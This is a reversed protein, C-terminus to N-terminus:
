LVSQLCSAVCGLLITMTLTMLLFRDLWSRCLDSFTLNKFIREMENLLAQVIRVREDRQACSFCHQSEKVEFYDNNNLRSQERSKDECIIQQRESMLSEIQEQLDKIKDRGMVAEERLRNIEASLNTVSSEETVQKDPDPPTQDPLMLDATNHNELHLVGVGAFLEQICMSPKRESKKLECKSCNGDEQDIFLFSRRKEKRDRMRTEAEELHKQLEDCRNELTEVTVSLSKIKVKEWASEETLKNHNEELESLSTEIQEYIRVRSENLEKLTATQKTLFEIEQVQDEIVGQQHRIIEELDKNRELLTNGLEAALQLDINVSCRRAQQGRCCLCMSSVTVSTVFSGPAPTVPGTISTVNQTVSDEVPDSNSHSITVLHDDSYSSMGPM